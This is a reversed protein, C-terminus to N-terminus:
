AGPRPHAPRSGSGSAVHDCRPAPVKRVLHWSCGSPTVVALCGGLWTSPTASRCSASSAPRAMRRRPAPPSISRTTSGAMFTSYRAMGPRTWPTRPLAPKSAMATATSGWHWRTAPRSPCHPPAIDLTSIDVPMHLHGQRPQQVATGIHSDVGNRVSGCNERSSQRVMTRPAQDAQVLFAGALGMPCRQVVPPVGHFSM